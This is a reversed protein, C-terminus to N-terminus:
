REEREILRISQPVICDYAGPSTPSVNGVYKYHAYLTRASMGSCDSNTVKVGGSAATYWGTFVYGSKEATPLGNGSGYPVNAIVYMSPTSAVGGNGKFTVKYTKPRYALYGEVTIYNRVFAAADWPTSITIPPTEETVELETVTGTSDVTIGSILIAHAGSKVFADGVQLMSLSSQDTVSLATSYSTTGLFSTGIKDKIGWCYSIFGSCDTGFLPAIVAAGPKINDTFTTAYFMSSSKSIKNKFSNFSMYLPDANNRTESEAPNGAGYVIYKMYPKLHPAYKKFVGPRAYPIGTVTSNKEFYYSSLVEQSNYKRVREKPQWTFRTLSNSQSMIMEGVNSRPVTAYAGVGKPEAESLSEERHTHAEGSECCECIRNEDNLRLLEVADYTGYLDYETMYPLLDATKEAKEKIAKSCFGRLKAMPIQFLTGDVTAVFHDKELDVSYYSVKDLLHVNDLSISCNFLEGAAYLNGSNTPIFSFVNDMPSIREVKQAGIRCSYVIGGTLYLMTDDNVIYFNRIQEKGASLVSSVKRSELDVAKIQAKGNEFVTFYLKGNSININEGDEDAFVTKRTDTEVYLKGNEFFYTKDAYSEKQYGYLIADHNSALKFSPDKTDLAPLADATLESPEFVDTQALVQMPIQVIMVALMLMAIIFRAPTVKNNTGKM